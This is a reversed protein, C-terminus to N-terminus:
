HLGEPCKEAFRSQEGGNVAVTGNDFGPVRCEFRPFKVIQQKVSAASASTRVAAKAAGKAKRVPGRRHREFRAICIFRLFEKTGIRCLEFAVIWGEGLHLVRPM